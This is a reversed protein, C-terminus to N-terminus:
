GNRGVREAADDLEAGLWSKIFDARQYSNALAAYTKVDNAGSFCQGAVDGAKIGLADQIIRVTVDLDNSRLACALVDEGVAALGADIMEDPSAKLCYDALAAFVSPTVLRAVAEFFANQAAVQRPTGYDDGGDRERNGDPFVPQPRAAAALAALASQPRNIGMEDDALNVTDDPGEAFSECNEAASEFGKIVGM